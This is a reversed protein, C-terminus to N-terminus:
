GGHARIRRRILHRWVRNAMVRATLPNERSTLWQALELRGSQQKPVGIEVEIVRPFGRPVTKV